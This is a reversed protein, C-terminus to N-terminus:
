QGLLITGASQDVTIPVSLLPTQAPGTLVSAAKTPDFSAGHCPCILQGSSPDFDVLCGAHTCTADYAVFHGNNLHILIGPDSNAPLTFNFASNAPVESIKAITGGPSPNSGAPTTNAVPSGLTPTVLTTFNSTNNSPLLHLTGALWTLALMAASGSALGWVFNRRGPQQVQGFPGGQNPPSQPAIPAAQFPRVTSAQPYPSYATPGVKVGLLFTYLAARRPQERPKAHEVLWTVLWADLAPLVQNAPGALLLTLWGFFYVLDSGYFYPYVHWDASLFFVLNVLMGFFAAPRLLLGLLVGVGIALEGYAVLAGFFVAHPAAVDLLFDHLPSGRAFGTIQQGIYGRAAPNFYQPDTLKQLGAYVFTVGLFLRLPVVMWGGWSAPKVSLNTKM